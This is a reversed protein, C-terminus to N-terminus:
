EGPALEYREAFEDVSMIWRQGTADELLMDGPQGRETGRLTDFREPAELRVAWVHRRLRYKRGTSRPDVRTGSM